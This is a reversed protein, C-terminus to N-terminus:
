FFRALKILVYFTCKYFNIPVSYVMFFCMIIPDIYRGGESSEVIKVSSRM